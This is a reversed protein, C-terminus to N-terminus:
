RAPNSDEAPDYPLNLAEEFSMTDGSASARGRIRALEEPSAMQLARSAQERADRPLTYIVLEGLSDTVSLPGPKAALLDRALLALLSRKSDSPLQSTQPLDATSM